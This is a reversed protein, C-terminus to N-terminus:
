LYFLGCMDDISLHLPNNALRSPSVNQCIIEVNSIGLESLSYKLGAANLADALWDPTIIDVLTQMKQNYYGYGRPDNLTKNHLNSSNFELLKSISLAVAHGHPLNYNETIYYSLAHSATTKAINIAKGAFNSALLTNQAVTEDYEQTIYSILNNKFIKIAQLSYQMSEENSCVSFYGEIAQSLADFATCARLYRSQG